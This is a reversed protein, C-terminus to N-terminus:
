KFMATSMKYIWQAQGKSFSKEKDYYKKIDIALKYAGGEKYEKKKDTIKKELAGIIAKLTGYAKETAGEDLPPNLVKMYAEQIRENTDSNRFDRNLREPYLKM